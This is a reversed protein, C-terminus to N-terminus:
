DKWSTPVLQASVEARGCTRDIYHLKCISVEEGELITIVDLDAGGHSSEDWNRLM